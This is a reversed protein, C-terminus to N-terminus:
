LTRGNQGCVTEKKVFQNVSDIPHQQNECLMRVGRVADRTMGRLIARLLQPPYFAAGPARGGVLHQHKHKGDCRVNLADVMCISNTMWRTPKKALMPEGGEGNVTLGFMCQDNVASHVGVSKLLRLIPKTRWSLAGSPHEHLFHKGRRM